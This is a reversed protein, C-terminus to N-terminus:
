DSMGFNGQDVSDSQLNAFRSTESDYFLKCTALPGMRQKEVMIEAAKEAKAMNNSWKSHAEDFDISSQKLAKRPEQRRLYYEERYIFMVVDADQEISGSERLDSLYPRKDERQEVARSLQALVLVPMKMEKALAKLDRTIQAVAQERNERGRTGEAASLMQLYDVVVVGLMGPKTKQRLRRRLAAVTLGPTDDIYLPLRGINDACDILNSMTDHGIPGNQQLKVSIGSELSIVKQMIEEGTMELSFLHVPIAQESKVINMAIQLAISSKGMGSRGGLVYLGGGRLGGIIRDLDTFGTKIADPARGVKHILEVGEIVNKLYESPDRLKGNIANDAGLAMLEGEILDRLQSGSQTPKMHNADHVIIEGLNILERRLYLDYIMKAYDPANLVSAAAGVLSALYRDGGATKLDADDKLYTKLTLPNFSRGANSEAVCLSYIRSHLPSAFHEAKLIDAIREVTRNSHLLSGLLAVEIDLNAPPASKEIEFPQMAM